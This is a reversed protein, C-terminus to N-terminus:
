VTQKMITTPIHACECTLSFSGQSSIDFLLNGIVRFSRDKDGKIESEYAKLTSTFGRFLLYEKIMSDILPSLNAM